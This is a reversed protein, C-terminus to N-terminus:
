LQIQTIRSVHANLADSSIKVVHIPRKVTMYIVVWQLFADQRCHWQNMSM